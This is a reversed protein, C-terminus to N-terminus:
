WFGNRGGSHPRIPLAGLNQVCAHSASCIKGESHAPTNWDSGLAKHRKNSRQSSFYAHGGFMVYRWRSERFELPSLNSWFRFVSAREGLKYNKTWIRGAEFPTDASWLWWLALNNKERRSLLPLVSNGKSCHSRRGWSNHLKGGDQPIVRILGYTSQDGIFARFHFDVGLLVRLSHIDSPKVLKLSARWPCKKWM